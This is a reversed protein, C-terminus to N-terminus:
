LVIGQVSDTEQDDRREKEGDLVGDGLVQDLGQRYELDDRDPEEEKGQKGNDVGGPAGSAM